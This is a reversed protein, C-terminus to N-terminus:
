KVKSRPILTLQGTGEVAFNSTTGGLPKPPSVIVLFYMLTVCFM